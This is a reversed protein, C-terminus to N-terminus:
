QLSHLNTILTHWDCLLTFSARGKIPLDENPNSRIIVSSATPSESARRDGQRPMLMLKKHISKGACLCSKDEWTSCQKTLKPYVARLITFFSSSRHYYQMSPEDVRMKSSAMKLWYFNDKNDSILGKKWMEVHSHIQIVEQSYFFLIHSEEANTILKEQSCSVGGLTRWKHCPVHM